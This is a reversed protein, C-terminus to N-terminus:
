MSALVSKSIKWHGKVKVVTNTYSGKIDVAEGANTTGTVHYTGTATASGDAGTVVKDQVIEIMLKSGTFSKAFATSINDNGTIASGDAAVRTADTTYMEKLEKADNKNYTVQFKKTFGLLEKTADQAQLPNIFTTISFMAFLFSFKITKKM